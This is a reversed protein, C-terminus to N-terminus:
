FSVSTLVARLLSVTSARQARNQLLASIEPALLLLRGEVMAQGFCRVAGDLGIDELARAGFVIVVQPALRAIGASFVAADALLPATDGTEAVPMASPWFVSSGKPLRLEGILDKFFVSREPSRGIGTLDAGLEHYTWLVPAPTIKAAWGGWPGPWAAPDRPVGARPAFALSAAIPPAETGSATSATNREQSVAQRASSDEGAQRLMAPATEQQRPAARGPLAEPQPTSASVATRAQDRVAAAQSAHQRSRAMLTEVPEDCLIHTVGSMSWARLAPGLSVSTVAM